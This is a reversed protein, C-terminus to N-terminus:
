DAKHFFVDAPMGIKLIGKPNELIVKVAYVLDVRAEKTQVNKPTFEARPSIWSVRGAFTRDPYSDIKLEAEEDLKIKGLDTESIYVKIWMENMTAIQVVPKGPMAFGGWARQFEQRSMRHYPVYAGYSVLGAM